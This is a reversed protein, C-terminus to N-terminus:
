EQSVTGLVCISAWCSHERWSAEIGGSRSLLDMGFAGHRGGIVWSM